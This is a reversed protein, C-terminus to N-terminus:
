KQNKTNWFITADPDLYAEPICEPQPQPEAVAFQQPEQPQPEVFAAYLNPVCLLELM